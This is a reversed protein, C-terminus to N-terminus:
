ARSSLAGEDTWRVMEEIARADEETMTGAINTLDRQAQPGKAGNMGLGRALAEAAVEQVSRGEEAAKKRLAEDVNAPLKDLIITMGGM